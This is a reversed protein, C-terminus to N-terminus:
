VRFGMMEINWGVPSELSHLEPKPNPMAKPKHNKSSGVSLYEMPPDIYTKM